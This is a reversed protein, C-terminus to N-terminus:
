QYWLDSLSSQPMILELTGDAGPPLAFYEAVLPLDLLKKEENEVVVIDSAGYNTVAIIKGVLNGSSDVILIGELSEITEEGPDTWLYQGRIGELSKREEIGRIKLVWQGQIFKRAEIIAPIGCSPDEGIVISPLSPNIERDGVLFFSGNLGQPPGVKGIKKWVAM